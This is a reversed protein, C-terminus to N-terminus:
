KLFLLEIKLKFKIKKYEFKNEKQIGIEIYKIFILDDDNINIKNDKFILYIPVNNHYNKFNDTFDLDNIKIEKIIPGLRNEIKGSYYIIEDKIFLYNIEFFLLVKSVLIFPFFNLLKLFIKRNFFSYKTDIYKVKSFFSSILFERLYVFDM